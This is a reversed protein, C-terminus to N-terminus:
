TASDSRAIATESAGLYASIVKQDERLLTPPGEAIVLGADLVYMRDVISALTPFDHEIILLTADLRDRIATLVPRFAEVERQAVGATPEDLLITRSGLCVITALEVIRRTGTSLERVDYNSVGGLGMLDLIEEAQRAHEGYRRFRPPHTGLGPHEPRGVDRSRQDIAVLLTEYVTSNPYLRAQQFSRGLGHQARRWPSQRTVDVGNLLIRGSTPSLQGGIVDFLTSKGAGNSGILGVIEGQMASMSVDHLIRLGGLEVNIGRVELAATDLPARGPAPDPEVVSLLPASAALVSGPGNDGAPGAARGSPPLQALGLRRLAWDRNRFFGSSMGSPNQLIVLLLGVSSVILILNTGFTGSFLPQIVDGLGVIAVGAIIAGSVTTVGGIIAMTVITLGLAPAFISQDSFDVLLGGYLYGGLAALVGSLAFAVLKVRMASIGQSEAVLENERVAIMRRGLRSTRLLWTAGAALILAILSLFYYAKEGSFAIAGLSPRLLQLSSEGFVNVNVLWPQAFLWTSAMTAFALKVIALNIGRVRLAPIGAVLAILGGACSALVLGLWWNIGSLQALRGGVLAGIAVFASQGISIQGCYGTLVVLSLAMIAFLFGSSLDDEISPSTVLGIVVAILVYVSLASGHFLRVRFQRAIAPDLRKVSGVSSWDESVVGGGRRALTSTRRVLLIVIILVFLVLDVTGQSPYNFLVIAEVVGVVIGGALAGTFSTLGGIMAAAIARELLDPGVETRQVVSQLPGVLIGAVAALVAAVVWAFLSIRRIPVGATLAAEPNDVAARSALGLRTFRFFAALAVCVIPVTILILVEPPSIQVSGITATLDFPIPFTASASNGVPVFLSIIYFGQACAITAILVIVRPATALRRMILIELVVGAAIAAAVAAALGLWYDLGITGVLWPVLGALLAGLDGQAFNLVRSTRYILVVGMALLSYTLGTTLGIMLVTANLQLGLISVTGSM